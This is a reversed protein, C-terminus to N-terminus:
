EAWRELILKAADYMVAKTEDPVIYTAKRVIRRREIEDAPLSEWDYGIGEAIWRALTEVDPESM